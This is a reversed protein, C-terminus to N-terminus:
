RKNNRGSSPGSLFSFLEIEPISEIVTVFMYPGVCGGFNLVAIFSIGSRCCMEANDVVLM